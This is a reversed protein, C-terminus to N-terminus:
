MHLLHRSYDLISHYFFVSIHRSLHIQRYLLSSMRLIHTHNIYDSPLARKVSVELCFIGQAARLSHWPDVESTTTIKKMVSVYRADKTLFM